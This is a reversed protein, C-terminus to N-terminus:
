KTRKGELLQQNLETFHKMAAEHRNKANMYRCNASNEERKSHEWGEKAQAVDKHTENLKELAQKIAALLEEMM